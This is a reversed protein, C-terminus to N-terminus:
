TASRSWGHWRHRRSPHRRGPGAPPSRRAASSRPCRHARWRAHHPRRRQTRAGIQPRQHPGRATGEPSIRGVGQVLYALPQRRTTDRLQQQRGIRAELRVGHHLTSASPRVPRARPWITRTGPHRPAREPVTPVPARGPRRHAAPRWPGGRYRDGAGRSPTGRGAPGRRSARARRLMTRSSSSISSSGAAQPEHGRHAHEIADM